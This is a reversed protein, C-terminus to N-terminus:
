GMRGRVSRILGIVEVAGLGCEEGVNHGGAEESRALAQDVDETTVVGFLVPVGSALQVEQVGRACEGSVLEYHTTEGRIVAGLVIVADFAGSDAHVKAAFPLEFAGPVWAVTVDEDAVGASRLGRRAGELLRNTVLDNFRGCLVAIRVGAGDLDPAVRDPSSADTAM